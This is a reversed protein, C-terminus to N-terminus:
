QSCGLAPTQYQWLYCEIGEDTYGLLQSRYMTAEVGDTTYLHDSNFPSYFRYLPVYAGCAPEKTCYGEIKEYTYGLTSQATQMETQKTTYFHNTVLSNYLRYLPLLCTCSQDIGTSAMYGATGESNFGRTTFTNREQLSTTYFHDNLTFQSNYMRYLPTLAGGYNCASGCISGPAVTVSNCNPINTTPFGTCSYMQNIIQFDCDSFMRAPPTPSNPNLQPVCRVGINVNQRGGIKRQFNWCPEVGADTFYVYDMETTHRQFRLCTRRQLELLANDVAYYRSPDSRIVPDIDFPIVGGPWLTQIPSIITQSRSFPMFLLAILKILSFLM